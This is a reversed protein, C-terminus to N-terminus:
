NVMLPMMQANKLDTAAMMGAKVCAREILARSMKDNADLDSKGTADGGYLLHDSDPADIPNNAHGAWTVDEYFNENAGRSGSLYIFIMQDIFKSWYDSLRNKGIQRVNH